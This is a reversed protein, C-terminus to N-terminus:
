PMENQANSRRETRQRDLWHRAWMGLGFALVLALAFVEYSIM